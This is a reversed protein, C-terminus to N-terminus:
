GEEEDRLNTLLSGADQSPAVRGIRHEALWDLDGQTVERAPKVVPKLLVVPHGHRTIM